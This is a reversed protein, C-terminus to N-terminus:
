VYTKGQFVRDTLQSDGIIEGKLDRRTIAYSLGRLIEIEVGENEDFLATMDEQDTPTTDGQIQAVRNRLEEGSAFYRRLGSVLEKPYTTEIKRITDLAQGLLTRIGVASQEFRRKQSADDEARAAQTQVAALSNGLEAVEHYLFNLADLWVAAVDRQTFKQKEKDGPFEGKLWNRERTMGGFAAEIADRWNAVALAQNQSQTKLAAEPM